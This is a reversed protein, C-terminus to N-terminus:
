LKKIENTVGWKKLELINTFIGKVGKFLKTSVAISPSQSHCFIHFYITKGNTGITLLGKQKLSWLMFTLETVHTNKQM